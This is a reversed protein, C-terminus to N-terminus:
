SSAASHVASSLGETVDRIYPSDAAPLAPPLWRAPLGLFVSCCFYGALVLSHQQQLPRPPPVYWQNSFPSPNPLSPPPSPAPCLFLLSIPLLSIQLKTSSLISYRRYKLPLHIKSTIVVLTLVFINKKMEAFILFKAWKRTNQRFKACNQKRSFSGNWKALIKAFIVLNNRNQLFFLFFKFVFFKWVAECMQEKRKCVNGCFTSFFFM